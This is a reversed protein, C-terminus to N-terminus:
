PLEVLYQKETIKDIKIALPDVEKDELDELVTVDLFQAITKKLLNDVDEIEMAEVDVDYLKGHKEVFWGRLPDNQAKELDMMGISPVLDYEEIQEKTVLVKYVEVNKLGLDHLATLINQPRKDGAPNFDGLYLIVVRRADQWAPELRHFADRIVNFILNGRLCQMTLRYNRGFQSYMQHITSKETWIEVLPQNEWPDFHHVLTFASKIRDKPDGIADEYFHDRWRDRTDDILKQFVHYEPNKIDKRAKTIAKIFGDYQSKILGTIKRKILRYYLYRLTVKRDPYKAFIKELTDKTIDLAEKWSKYPRYPKMYPDRMSAYQIKELKGVEIFLLLAENIFDGYVATELSRM